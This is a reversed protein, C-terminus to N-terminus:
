SSYIIGADMGAPTYEDIRARLNAERQPQYLDHFAGMESEDDAGHRIEESCTGALQCYTPTGYRTSNFQPRVREAERLWADEEEQETLPTTKGEEVNRRLEKVKDQGALDPQCHYCRPTRSGPRVYSFRVCGRQSRAVWVQGDFITNEALDIAHTLVHGIVTCDSTTLVAHAFGSGPASLAECEPGECGTGTADLISDSLRIPIPDTLVEDQFVHISGLISHEVAVHVDVNWLELSPEAPYNPDCNGQLSWGPVLTCHRVCLRAPLNALGGALDEVCGETSRRTSQAPEQQSMVETFAQEQPEGDGSPETPEPSEVPLSEVHVGRGAIMLGDLVFRSGPSLFVALADPGGTQYDLLRLIPRVGNAARLQLSKGPALQIARLPTLGNPDPINLQEVYVGSKDIEIVTDQVSGQHQDNYWQALATNITPYTDNPVHYVIAGAPQQLTRDYEGGGMDTSFGYHYSAHVGKRPLQGKPFAMRGLLPDVAVTGKQPIYKWESLDAPVIAAPPIPQEAGKAPWDPAWIVLSKGKGYYVTSAQTWKRGGEAHREEFALRRIPIPVNLEGAIHTLSHEPEPKVYLPSDNGLVSFTYCHPGAEELCYASTETVSYSRLRWIFLGVNPINYRGQPVYPSSIRRVDVSHGLEDFPGGLRDIADGDRLDVTRGRRLYMAFLPQTWGLLRYFEVARAPWGAVDRALEELLALAGKRRRYRIVNAVDQRPILIKCLSPDAATTMDVPEGVEHVPVYGVLDGIYPVLWDQCTEIFWNEYLQGIDDEVAKVQEAIVQLLAHLPEGQEADRLRHIVPLLEYLRDLASNM